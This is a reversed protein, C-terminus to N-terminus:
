KHDKMETEKEKESEKEKELIKHEREEPSSFYVCKLHITIPIIYIFFFSM